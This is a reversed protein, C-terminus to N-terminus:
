EELEELPAVNLEWYGDMLLSVATQLEVEPSRVRDEPRQLCWIDRHPVCVCVYVFYENMYIIFNFKKFSNKDSTTVSVSTIGASLFCPSASRQSHSAFRTWMDVEQGVMGVQHSEKGFLLFKLLRTHTNYIKWHLSLVNMEVVFPFM